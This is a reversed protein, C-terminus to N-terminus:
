WGLWRIVAHILLWGMFGVGALVAGTVLGVLGWVAWVLLDVRRRQGLRYVESNELLVFQRRAQQRDMM